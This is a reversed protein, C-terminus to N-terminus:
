LYKIQKPSINAGKHVLRFQRSHVSHNKVSGPKGAAHIVITELNVTMNIHLFQNQKASEKSSGWIFAILTFFKQETIATIAARPDWSEEASSQFEPVPPLGERLPSEASRPGRVGVIRQCPPNCATIACGATISSFMTVMDRMWFM